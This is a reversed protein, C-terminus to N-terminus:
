EPHWSHIHGQEPLRLRITLEVAAAGKNEWRYSYTGASPPTFPVTAEAATGEDHIVVEGGPHSHVNWALPASADFEVQM